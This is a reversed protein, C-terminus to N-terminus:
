ISVIINMKDATIIPKFRERKGKKEAIFELFGFKELFKVDMNVSKFDRGLTKALKYISEPKKTKITHLIRVRENSLLHRLVAIDSFDIDSESEKAWRFRNFIGSVIGSSVNIDIYRTKEM